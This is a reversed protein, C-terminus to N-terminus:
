FYFISMKEVLKILREQLILLFGPIDFSFIDMIILAHVLCLVYSIATSRVCLINNFPDYVCARLEHSM